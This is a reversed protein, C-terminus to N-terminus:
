QTQEKVKPDEPMSMWHTPHWDLGVGNICWVGRDHDYYGIKKTYSGDRYPLAVLVDDSTKVSCYDNLVIAPLRDSVSIWDNVM